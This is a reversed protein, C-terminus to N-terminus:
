RMTCHVSLAGRPSNADRRVQLYVGPLRNGRAIPPIRRGDITYSGTERTGSFPMRRVTKEGVGTAPEYKWLGDATAAYIVTSYNKQPWVVGSTKVKLSLSWQNSNSSVYVGSDTSAFVKRADSISDYTVCIHRVPPAVLQPTMPYWTGTDFEAAWFIGRSTGAFVKGDCATLSFVTSDVCRGYVCTMNQWRRGDNGGTLIGGSGGTGIGAVAGAMFGGCPGWSVLSSLRSPVLPLPLRNSLTCPTWSGFPYKAIYLESSTSACYFSDQHAIGVVPASFGPIKRWAPLSSFMLSEGYLGSDTGAFASAGDSTTFLSRVTGAPRDAASAGIGPYREISDLSGSVCFVGSDKVAILAVPQKNKLLDVGTTAATIELGPFGIRKWGAVADTFTGAGLSVVIGPLLIRFHM